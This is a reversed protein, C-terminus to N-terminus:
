ESGAEKDEAAGGDDTPSRNAMPPQTPTASKVVLQGWQGIESRFIAEVREIEASIDANPDAADWDIEAEDLNREADTYLKELQPFGILSEFGTIAGALSGLIAAAVAWAARPTGDLQGIVGALAAALLLLNRVIVVQRHADKYETARDAYYTRQDRIRSTAYFRRFERDRDNM